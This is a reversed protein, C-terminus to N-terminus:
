TALSLRWAVGVAHAIKVLEGVERVNEEYPLSSRDVMISSFGNRIATVAHHYAMGHDSQNGRSCESGKGM